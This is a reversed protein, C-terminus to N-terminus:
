PVCVVHSKAHCPRSKQVAQVNGCTGTSEFAELVPCGKSLSGALWAGGHHMDNAQKFAAVALAQSAAPLSGGYTNQCYAQAEHYAM